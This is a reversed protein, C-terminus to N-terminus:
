SPEETPTTRTGKELIRLVDVTRAGEDVDYYVRFDGVRLRYQSWFPQAMLRIRSKSVKTSEHLLHQEIGQAVTARDFARLARLDGVAEVAYRILYPNPV